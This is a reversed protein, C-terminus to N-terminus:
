PKACPISRVAPRLEAVLERARGLALDTELRLELAALRVEELRAIAGQTFSAYALDALTPGRWLGLAQGLRESAEALAGGALLERAEGVLREFRGLDLRDSEVRIAYGPPRTVIVDAPLAKRLRSVTVRLATSATEAADGGWLEDILRDSSVVENAHLLLLALLARTRPGGLPVEVGDDWVELPGLIRFQM